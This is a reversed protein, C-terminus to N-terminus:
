SSCSIQEHEGYTVLSDESFPTLTHLADVYTHRPTLQPAVSDCLLLLFSSSYPFSTTSYILGPVLNFFIRCHIPHLVPFADGLNYGPLRHEEGFGPNAGYGPNHRDDQEEGWEQSVADMLSGREDDKLSAQSAASGNRMHSLSPAAFSAASSQQMPGNFRSVFQLSTISTHCSYTLSTISFFNENPPSTLFLHIQYLNLKQSASKHVAMYCLWNTIYRNCVNLLFNEDPPSTLVCSNQYLNLQSANTLPRLISIYRNGSCSSSFNWQMQTTVDSCILKTSIWNKPHIQSRGCLQYIFRNGCMSFFIKM